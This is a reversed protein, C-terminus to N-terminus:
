GRSPYIVSTSDKALRPRLRFVNLQPRASEPDVFLWEDHWAAGKELLVTHLSDVTASLVRDGQANRIEVYGTTPRSKPDAAPSLAVARFMVGDNSCIPTVTLASPMVEGQFLTTHLWSLPTVSNWVVKDNPGLAVGELQWSGEVVLTRGLAWPASCMNVGLSIFGKVRRVAPVDRLFERVLGGDTSRILAIQPGNTGPPSDINSAFTTDDFAHLSGLNHVQGSIYAAPTFRRSLRGRDDIVVINRRRGDLAFLTDGLFVLGIVGRFELPGGGCRGFQYQLSGERIDFVSVRCESQEYVAVRGAKSTALIGRSDSLVGDGFSREYELVYQSAATPPRDAITAGSALRWPDGSHCSLSMLALVAAFQRTSQMQFHRAMMRVRNAWSKTLGTTHQLKPRYAGRLVLARLGGDLTVDGLYFGHTPSDSVNRHGRPRM